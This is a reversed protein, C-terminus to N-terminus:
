WLEDIDGFLAGYAWSIFTGGPCTGGATVCLPTNCYGDLPVCQNDKWMMGWQTICGQCTAVAPSVVLSCILFFCWMGSVVESMLMLWIDRYGGGSDLAM